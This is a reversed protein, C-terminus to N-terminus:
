DGRRSSLEYSLALIEGISDGAEHEHKEVYRGTVKLVLEVMERRESFDIMNVTILESGHVYDKVAKRIAKVMEPKEADAKEILEAFLTQVAAAEATLSRPYRRQFVKTVQADLGERIRRSLLEDSVEAKALVQLFLNQVAPKEDIKQKANDAM